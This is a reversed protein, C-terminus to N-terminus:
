VFWIARFKIIDSEWLRINQGQCFTGLERLHSLWHTKLITCWCITNMKNSDYLELPINSGLQEQPTEQVADDDTIELQGWVGSDSSTSRFKCTINVNVHLSKSAVKIWLSRCYLFFFCIRHISEPYLCRTCSELSTWM